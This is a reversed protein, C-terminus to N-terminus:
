VATLQPEFVSLPAPSPFRVWPELKPLKPIVMIRRGSRCRNLCGGGEWALGADLIRVSRAEFTCQHWEVVSTDGNFKNQSRTKVLSSIRGGINGNSTPMAPRSTHRSQARRPKASQAALMRPM